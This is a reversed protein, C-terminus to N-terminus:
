DSQGPRFDKWGPRMPAAGNPQLLLLPNLKFGSSIQRSLHTWKLLDHMMRTFALRSINLKEYNVCELDIPEDPNKGMALLINMEDKSLRSARVTTNIKKYTSCALRCTSIISWWFLLCGSFVLTGVVLSGWERPVGEIHLPALRPGLYLVLSTVFVAVVLSRSVGIQKLVAPIWDM